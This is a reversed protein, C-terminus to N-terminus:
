WVYSQFKKFVWKLYINEELLIINDNEKLEFFVNQIKYITGM